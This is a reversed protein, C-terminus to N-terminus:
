RKENLKNIFKVTEKIVDESQPYIGIKDMFAHEMGRYHIMSINVGENYLKDAFYEQQIRLYDYEACVMFTPPLYSLKDSLLISVHADNKDIKKQLYLVDLMKISERLALIDKTIVLMDKLQMDYMDLSWPYEHTEKMLVHPYYLIIGKIRKTNNEIDKICCSLALNGGASDGGVYLQNVDIRYEENHEYLYTLAAYADDLAAPYPNEPALRYDVDIVNFKLRDSLARCVNRTVDVSGGVYAGGHFYIITPLIDDHHLPRYYNMYIIRDKMPLSIQSEAIHNKTIDKNDCGMKQRISGIPIGKYIPPLAINSMIGKMDKKAEKHYHPDLVGAEDVMPIKKIICPYKMDGQIHSTQLQKLCSQYTM